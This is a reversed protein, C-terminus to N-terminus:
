GLVEMALTLRIGHLLNCDVFRKRFPQELAIKAILLHTWTEPFRNRSEGAHKILGKLEGRPKGLRIQRQAALELRCKLTM